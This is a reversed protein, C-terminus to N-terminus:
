FKGTYRWELAKALEASYRYFTIVGSYKKIIWPKKIVYAMSLGSLGTFRNTRISLNENNARVMLKAPLDTTPITITATFTSNDIPRHLELGEQNQIREIFKLEIPKGSVTMEVTEFSIGAGGLYGEITFVGPRVEDIFDLYVYTASSM